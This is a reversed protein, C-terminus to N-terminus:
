NRFCAFFAGFFSLYSLPSEDRTSGANDKVAEMLGSTSFHMKCSKKDIRVIYFASDYMVLRGMDGNGQTFSNLAPFLFHLANNQLVGNIGMEHRYYQYNEYPNILEGFKGLTETWFGSAKVGQVVATLSYYNRLRHLSNALHDIRSSLGINAAMVRKVTNSLRNWQTNLHQRAHGGEETFAPAVYEAFLAQDKRSIAEALASTSCWRIQELFGNSTDLQSDWDVELPMYFDHFRFRMVQLEQLINPATDPRSLIERLPKVVSRLSADLREDFRSALDEENANTSSKHTRKQLVARQWATEVTAYIFPDAKIEKLIEKVQFLLNVHANVLKSYLKWELFEYKWLFSSIKDSSLGFAKRVFDEYPIGKFKLFSEESLKRAIEAPNGDVLQSLDFKWPPENPTYEERRPSFATLGTLKTDREDILGLQCLLDISKNDGRLLMKEVENPRWRRIEARLHEKNGDVDEDPQNTSDNVQTSAASLSSM